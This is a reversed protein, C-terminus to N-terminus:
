IVLLCWMVWLPYQQVGLCLDDTYFDCDVSASISNHSLPPIVSSGFDAPPSFRDPIAQIRGPIKNLGPDRIDRIPSNPRMVSPRGQSQSALRGRFPRRRRAPPGNRFPRQRLEAQLMSYFCCSRLTWVSDWRWLHMLIMPGETPIIRRLNWFRTKMWMLLVTKRRLRIGMNVGKIQVLCSTKWNMKCTM